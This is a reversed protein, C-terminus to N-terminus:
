SEEGQKHLSGTETYRSRKYASSALRLLRSIRRSPRPEELRRVEPPPEEEESRFHAPVRFLSFFLPGVHHTSCARVEDAREWEGKKKRERKGVCVCVCTSEERDEERKKDKGGEGVGERAPGRMASGVLFLGCHFDDKVNEGENCVLSVKQGQVCDSDTM